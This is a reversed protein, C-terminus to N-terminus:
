KENKREDNRREEQKKLDEKHSNREMDEPDDLEPANKLAKWNFKADMPTLAKQPDFLRLDSSLANYPTNDPVDTFLDSLDTAGADFQNIYPTGLINWFTKFISGFSYHVHGVYDKKAYPSILMLVSRHADIHDVGGQSDDETVVILMNKWYPTHSLFEVIRGLALDNDAQYSCEFPYGDNPREGAGHDNPLTLTLASPLTKGKGVWRDNFEKMFMDTRFQDPIYMNFTAYLKSTNNFLPASVPYNIISRTGSYKFEKEEFGPAMEVGMGFNFFSIKNRDFHDWVTGAENYDEPYVSANSGVMLNAGPATSNPKWDRNGGYAASVSTEVWENPYTCALWRHGDASHDSDCYFNDGISFRKTLALHNPMVNCHDIRLTKKENQVTVNVGFRALSALGKGKAVQGLVEDYNRNEKAIFVIYKIPSEKEKPYLPVPNNKRNVFSQDLADTFVFNNKMVQESQQALTEISPIDIVSVYGHMLHGINSGEPGLTFDPGANPGSGYGKANSVILKKGDSTVKLKSPFWATPIHGVVERRDINIVGVANIGAEAVFLTKTDPTLALGFPIIGRFRKLREDPKIYITSVVTDKKVDIMSICDNNGNSVFVFDNTAVLSNPSAGGVAPFDEVMEGVPIGTKIKATVKPESQNLDIKFVSFSEINHPDGLGPVDVTDNKYGDAGKKSLYASTPFTVATTKSKKPDFSRLFKYEYMGVNAVYVSKEDPTLTVGFPYRGVQIRSKLAKTKVDVILLSFNTQDVAYITSGDKSMVMDGIYGDKIKDTTFNISGAPNGNKLDFLYIKNEQGGAVYVTNNDPAIALGMFVSALIGKNTEAGPPIQQVEPNPTNLGRIISISLPSTGSNATVAINGDNSLVLGYPHPAVKIQRGAPTIFRGNPLVTQGQQNINTYQNGAPASIVYPGNSLTASTKPKCSSLAFCVLLLLGISKRMPHLYSVSCFLNRTGLLQCNSLMVANLM